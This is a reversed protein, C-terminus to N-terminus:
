GLPEERLCVSWCESPSWLDAPVPRAAFWLARRRLDDLQDFWVENVADFGPDPGPAPHGQAYAFGRLEDPIPDGGLRGSERRWRAAFEAPSLAPNRRGFSMMKLGDGGGARHAALADAGRQVVEEVAVAVSGPGLALSPVSPEGAFWLVDVAAVPAPPVGPLDLPTGLAARVVTDRWRARVADPDDRVVCVVKTTV